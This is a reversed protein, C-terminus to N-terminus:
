AHLIEMQLHFEVKKNGKIKFIHNKHRFCINVELPVFKIRSRYKLAGIKKMVRDCAQM